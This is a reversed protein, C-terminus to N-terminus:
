MSALFGQQSNMRSLAQDYAIYQKQLTAKRLALREVLSAMRAEVSDAESELTEKTTAIIGGTEVFDGIASKLTVFLGDVGNGGVFLKKLDALNTKAASDFVGADFELEGDSTFGIGAAAAYSFAGGVSYQANLKELLMTSVGRVTGDKGIARADGTRGRASEQSIFTMVGNYAKVFNEIKTKTGDLDQDVTATVTTTPSKQLLTLTAGAVADTVTNTSSSVTIGNVEVSADTASVANVPNFTMTSATMGDVISFSNATGTSNGTLVLQYNGASPSVVTATVPSGDTANIKDALGQLTVPNDINIAVGGITLTGGTAVISTDKDTHASNSATVQARALEMVKIDYTGLPTTAGVSVKVISEDTVTTSRGGFATTEDLADTAGELESLKSLFTGFSTIQTNIDGIRTELRKLPASEQQMVADLIQMFDIKNFGSLTVPSGM